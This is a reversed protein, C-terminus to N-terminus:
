HRKLSASVVISIAIMAAMMSFLAFILFRPTYIFEVKSKGAPLKISKLIGLPKEIQTQIGNITASWGAVSADTMLLDTASQTEVNLELRNSYLKVETIGSDIADNKWNDITIESSNPILWVLRSFLNEGNSDNTLAKIKPVFLPTYSTLYPHRQAVGPNHAIKDRSVTRSNSNWFVPAKPPYSAGYVMAGNTNVIYDTGQLYRISALSGDFFALAIVAYTAWKSGRKMSFHGITILIAINIMLQFNDGLLLIRAPFLEFEHDLNFLKQQSFSFKISIMLFLGACIFQVLARNGSRNSILFSWIYSFVLSTFIVLTAVIEYKSVVVPDKPQEFYWNSIFVIILGLSLQLILLQFTKIKGENIKLLWADVMRVGLTILLLIPIGAIFYHWRLLSYGPFFDVFLSAIISSENQTSALAIVSIFLLFYDRSRCWRLLIGTMGVVAVWGGLYCQGYGPTPGLGYSNPLFLSLWVKSTTSGLFAESRGSFGRIDKFQGIYFSLFESFQLVVLSLTLIGACILFFLSSSFKQTNSSFRSAFTFIIAFFIGFYTVEIYGGSIMLWLIVPVLALGQLREKTSIGAILKDFGYFLWPLFVTAIFVSLNAATDIAIGSSVFAISGAISLLKCEVNRKLWFYTGLFGIISTLMIELVMISQDYRFISGLIIAIPYTIGVGAIDGTIPYGPNSFPDWFPFIGERLNASLYNRM